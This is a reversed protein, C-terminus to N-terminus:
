EQLKKKENIFPPIQVRKIEIKKWVDGLIYPETKLWEEEMAERSPFNCVIMSGTMVGEDNLIGAAYLLKGNEFMGKATRLHDERVAMRREVARKDTGDYGIVIFHM